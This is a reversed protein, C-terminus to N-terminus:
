APTKETQGYDLLSPQEVCLKEYEITMKRYLEKFEDPWNSAATKPSVPEGILHGIHIPVIKLREADVNTRLWRVSERSRKRLAVPIITTIGANLKSTTDARAGVTKVALSSKRTERYRAFQSRPLHSQRIAM